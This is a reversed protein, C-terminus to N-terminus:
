SGVKRYLTNIGMSGDYHAKVLELLEEIPVIPLWRTEKEKTVPNMRLCRHLVHTTSGDRSNALMYNHLVSAFDCKPEGAQM